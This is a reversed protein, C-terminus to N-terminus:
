WLMEFDYQHLLKNVSTEYISSTMLNPQIITLRINKCDMKAAYKDIIGVGLLFSEENDYAHIIDNKIPEITIVEITETGILVVDCTKAILEDGNPVKVIENFLLKVSEYIKMDEIRDLVANFSIFTLSDSFDTFSYMITLDILTERFEEKDIIGYHKKLKLITFDKIYDEYLQNFLEQKAM